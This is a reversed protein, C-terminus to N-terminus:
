GSPSVAGASLRPTGICQNTSTNSPPCASSSKPFTAIPGGDTPSRPWRTALHLTRPRVATKSDAVTNGSPRHASAASAHTSSPQSPGNAVLRPLAATITKGPAVVGGARRNETCTPRVMGFLGSRLSRSEFVRSRAAWQDKKCILLLAPDRTAPTPDGGQIDPDLCRPSRTTPGLQPGNAPAGSFDRQCLGLPSPEPRPRGPTDVHLPSVAPHM